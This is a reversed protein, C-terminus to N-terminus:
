FYLTDNFSIEHIAPGNIENNEKCLPAESPGTSFNSM